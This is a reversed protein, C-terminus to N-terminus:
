ARHRILDGAPPPPRSSSGEALKHLIMGNAAGPGEVMPLKNFVTPHLNSRWEDSVKWSQSCEEWRQKGTEAVVCMPPVQVIDCAACANLVRRWGKKWSAAKMNLPGMFCRPSALEKVRVACRGIDLAVECVDCRRMLHRLFGTDRTARRFLLM